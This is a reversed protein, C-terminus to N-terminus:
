LLCHFKALAYRSLHLSLQIICLKFNTERRRSVCTSLISWTRSHQLWCVVVSQLKKTPLPFPAFRASLLVPDTNGPIVKMLLMHNVYNNSWTWSLRHMLNTKLIGSSPCFEFVWCNQNNYIFNMKNNNCCQWPLGRTIVDHFSDIFFSKQVLKRDAGGSICNWM